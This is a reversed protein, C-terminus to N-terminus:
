GNTKMEKWNLFYTNKLLSKKFFKFILDNEKYEGEIETYGLKKYFGWAQKRGSLFLTSYNLNRSIEEAYIILERGLGKGQYEQHFAVQKIQMCTPSCPHLLLTGIVQDDQRVVLHIDQKEEVPSERLLPKGASIKLIQNRLALAEKYYLSGWSVLTFM